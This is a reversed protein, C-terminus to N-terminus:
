KHLVMDVHPIGDVVYEETFAEFGFSAYFERLYAQAQIYIDEGPFTRECAILAEEVLERGLGSGRFVPNVIVRGFRAQGDQRYVRFYSSIQNGEKKFIHVCNLDTDDVEPYFCEQEVIFVDVRLRYIDYLERTTLEDFVKYEWSM